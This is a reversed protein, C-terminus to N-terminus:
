WLKQLLPEGDNTAIAGYVMTLAVLAVEHKSTLCDITSHRIFKSQLDRASM